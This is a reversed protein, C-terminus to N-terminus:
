NVGKDKLNKGSIGRKSLNAKALRLAGKDDFSFAAPVQRGEDMVSFAFSGEPTLGISAMKKGRKDHFDITPTDTGYANMSIRTKNGGDRMVFREAYIIDCVAPAAFSMLTLTGLGLLAALGTRKLRRNQAELAALRAELTENHM